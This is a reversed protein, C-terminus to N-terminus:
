GRKPLAVVATAKATTEGRQNTATVECEVAGFSAGLEDRPPDLVASTSKVAGTIWTTDGLFNPRVLRAALEAVFGDDGCWDTLLHSLWSIRQGGFDYARPMGGQSTFYPDWHGGALTDEIGTNPNALLTGPFDRLVHYAIRNTQCLPSGWGIQWGALNTMTLPGKVLTILEDGVEVDDWYRTEAGRRQATEKEYQAHIANVEDESYSAAPTGMYKATERGGSREIRLTTHYNEAILRDDEGYFSIRDVLEVAKGAFRSELERIEHLEKTAHIKEDVWLHSSWVWRDERWLGMVGQLLEFAVLGGPPRGGDVGNGACSYLFAPPAFMKAWRTAKAYSEDWWLPNDDGIGLAFHWIHDFSASSNWPHVEIPVGVLERLAELAPETIKGNEWDTRQAQV